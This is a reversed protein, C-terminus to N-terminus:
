KSSPKGPSKGSQPQGSGLQAADTAVRVYTEVCISVHECKSEIRIELSLGAFPMSRLRHVPSEFPATSVQTQNPWNYYPPHQMSHQQSAAHQHVPQQQQQVLPAPPLLQHCQHAQHMAMINGNTDAAGNFASLNSSHDMHNPEYHGTACMLSNYASHHSSNNNDDNQMHISGSSNNHMLHIPAQSLNADHHGGNHQHHPLVHQHPASSSMLSLHSHLQHMRQSKMETKIELPSLLQPSTSSLPEMFQDSENSEMKVQTAISGLMIANEPDINQISSTIDEWLPPRLYSEDALDNICIFEKQSKPGIATTTTTLTTTNPSYQASVNYANLDNEPSSPIKDFAYETGYSDYITSHLYGSPPPSATAVSQHNHPHHIEIKVETDYKSGLRGM